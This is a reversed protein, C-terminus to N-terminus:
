KRANRIVHAACARNPVELKEYINELHRKVTGPQIGLITAIECNTKGLCLWQGVENERQTLPKPYVPTSKTAGQWPFSFSFTSKALPQKPIYVAKCGINPRGGPFNRMKNPRRRITEIWEAIEHILPGNDHTKEALLRLVGKRTRPLAGAELVLFPDGKPETTGSLEAGALLHPLMQQFLLRDLEGFGRQERIVCTSLTVEQNLRIDVGLSDEMQIIPRAVQYMERGQWDGSSIVDSIAMVRGKTQYILPHSSAASMTNMLLNKGTEGDSTAHSILGTRHTLFALHMDGGILRTMTRITAEVLGERSAAGCFSAALENAEMMKGSTYSCPSKMLFIPDHAM